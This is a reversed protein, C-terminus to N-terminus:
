IVALPWGTSPVSGNPATIANVGGVERMRADLRRDVHRARLRAVRRAVGHQRQRDPEVGLLEGLRM